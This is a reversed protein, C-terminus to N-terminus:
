QRGRMFRPDNGKAWGHYQMVIKSKDPLLLEGLPSGDFMETSRRRHFVDLIEQATRYRQSLDLSTMRDLVKRIARPTRGQLNMDIGRYERDQATPPWQGTNLYVILAGVSYVDSQPLSIGQYQEPATFGECVVSYTAKESAAPSMSSFDLLVLRLDDLRLLINYPNIDRHVLPPTAGHLPALLGLLDRILSELFSGQIGQPNKEILEFLTPGKFYHIVEYFYNDDELIEVPLAIQGQVKTGSYVNVARQLTDPQYASKHLITKLLYTDGDAVSQVIQLKSLPENYLDRIVIYKNWLLEAPQPRLASSDGSVTTYPHPTGKGFTEEVTSADGLHRQLTTLSDRPGSPQSVQINPTLAENAEPRRQLSTVIKRVRHVIDALLTTLGDRPGSPQSVQINPTLAENAEPRQQLSTVIKRVQLAIDALAADKKQRWDSLPKLNGAEDKPLAQLQSIPLATWDCHNAIVPIVTAAGLGHREIAQALEVSMCYHSGMFKASIVLIIIEADVLKQKILPDWEQGASIQTDSFAEISGM